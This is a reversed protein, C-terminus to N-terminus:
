NLYIINENLEIQMQAVKLKKCVWTAFYWMLVPYEFTINPETNM